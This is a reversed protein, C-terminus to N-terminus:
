FSPGPTSAFCNKANMKGPRTIKPTMNMLWDNASRSSRSRTRPTSRRSIIVGSDGRACIAPANRNM